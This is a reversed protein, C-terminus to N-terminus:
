RGARVMFERSLLQNGWSDKVVLKYKGAEMFRYPPLGHSAKAALRLKEEHLPELKYTKPNVRFFLVIFSGDKGTDNTLTFAVGTGAATPISDVEETKKPPISLGLDAIVIEEAAAVTAAPKTSASPTGAAPKTTAAPKASPAAPKAPVAPKSAAQPEAPSEPKAAAMPPRSAIVSRAAILRASWYRDSLPSLIVGTMPGASVAHIVKGDGMFLSVHSPRGGVTDYIFVDGPKAERWDIPTGIGPYDRASRPLTLGFAERYVYRVFGSCDFAEPSEAGYVYPVGKYRLAVAILRARAEDGSPAGAQAFAGITCALAAALAPLLTRTFRMPLVIGCGARSIM